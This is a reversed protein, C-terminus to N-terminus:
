ALRPAEDPPPKGGRPRDCRQRGSPSATGATEDCFGALLEAVRRPAELQPCHGVGELTELKAHPVEALLRQAGGISVMRDRDGWIVLVPCRVRGLEFCQDLEPLLRRGASLIRVADAKTRIHSTFSDIVGRDIGSADAFALLRYARGVVQRVVPEPVPMPTALLARLLPEGQILQFWTPMELGAPAIPVVGRVPLRDNEAGRLALVGGLSNGAIVVGGEGSWREVAAEVFRDLQPVIPGGDQLPTAAGFGPCDLAVAARERRRLEDLLPRWTDASDAFGHLLLLRPEQGGLEIARTRVGALRPEHEVIPEM